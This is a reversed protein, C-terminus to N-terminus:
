IWNHPQQQQSARTGACKRIWVFGRRERAPALLSGYGPHFFVSDSAQARLGAIPMTTYKYRVLAFKARNLMGGREYDGAPVLHVPLRRRPVLVLTQGVRERREREFNAMKEEERMQRRRPRVLAEALYLIEAATTQASPVTGDTGEGVPCDDWSLNLVVDKFVDVAPRPKPRSMMLGRVDSPKTQWGISPHYLKRAKGHALRRLAPPAPRYVVSRVRPSPIPLMSVRRTLNKEPAQPGDREQAVAGRELEPLQPAISSVPVPIRSPKHDQHRDWALAM